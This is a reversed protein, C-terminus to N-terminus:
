PKFYMRYTVVKFSCFLSQKFIVCGWEVSPRCMLDSLADTIRNYDSSCSM